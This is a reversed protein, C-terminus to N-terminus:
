RASEMDPAFFPWTFGAAAFISTLLLAVKSALSFKYIDSTFTKM